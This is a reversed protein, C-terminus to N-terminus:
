KEIEDLLENAIKNEDFKERNNTKENMIIM